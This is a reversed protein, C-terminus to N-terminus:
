GRSSSAPLSILQRHQHCRVGTGRGGVVGCPSLGELSKWWIAAIIDGSRHLAGGLPLEIRLLGRPRRSFRFTTFTREISTIYAYSELSALSLIYKRLIEALTKDPSPEFTEAYAWFHLTLTSSVVMNHNTFAEKKDSDCKCFVLM